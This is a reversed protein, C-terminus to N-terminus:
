SSINRDFKGKSKKQIEHPGVTHIHGCNQEDYVNIM